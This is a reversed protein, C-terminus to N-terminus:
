LQVPMCLILFAQKYKLGPHVITQRKKYCFNGRVIVIDEKVHVVFIPGM